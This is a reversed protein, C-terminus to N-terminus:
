SAIKETDKGNTYTRGNSEPLAPQIYQSSEVSIHMHSQKNSVHLPAAPHAQILAQKVTELGLLARLPPKSTRSNKNQTYKAPKKLLSKQRRRNSLRLVHFISSYFNIGSLLEMLGFVLFAAIVSYLFM